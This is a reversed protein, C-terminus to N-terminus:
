AKILATSQCRLPTPSFMRDINLGLTQLASTVVQTGVAVGSAMLYLGIRAMAEVTSTVQGDTNGVQAFNNAFAAASDTKLYLNTPDYPVQPSDLWWNANAITHANTAFGQVVNAFNPQLAIVSGGVPPGGLLHVIDGQLFPVSGVLVYNNGNVVDTSKDDPSLNAVNTIGPANFTTFQIQNAFNVSTLPTPDGATLAEIAIENTKNITWQVDAGGLSHGVLSIDNGVELQTALWLDVKTAIDDGFQKKGIDSIDQFVNQLNATGRFALIRQGDDTGAPKLAYVFVGNVSLVGTSDFSTDLTWEPPIIYPSQSTGYVDNAVIYADSYSIFGSM